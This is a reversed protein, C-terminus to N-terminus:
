ELTGCFSYGRQIRDARGIRTLAQILLVLGCYFTYQLSHFIVCFLALLDFNVAYLALLWNHFSVESVMPAVLINLEFFASQALFVVM